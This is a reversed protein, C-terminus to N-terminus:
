TLQVMVSIVPADSHTQEPSAALEKADSLSTAINLLTCLNCQDILRLQYRALNCEPPDHVVFYWIKISMSVEIDKGQQIFGAPLM